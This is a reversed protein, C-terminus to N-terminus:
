SVLLSLLPFSVGLPFTAASATVNDSTLNVLRSADEREGVTEGDRKYGM